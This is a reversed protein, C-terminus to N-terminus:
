ALRPPTSAQPLWPAGSAAPAPAFSATSAYADMAAAVAVDCAGGWHEGAERAAAHAAAAAKIAAQNKAATAPDGIKAFHASVRKTLAEIFARESIRDRRQPSSSASGVAEGGAGGCTERRLAPYTSRLAEARAAECLFQLRTPGEETPFLPSAFSPSLPASPASCVSSAPALPVSKMPLGSGMDCM